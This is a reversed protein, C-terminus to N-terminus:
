AKNEFDDITMEHDFRLLLKRDEWDEEYIIEENLIYERLIHRPYNAGALYSLPYGGGFRPNIEIGYITDCTRSKFIQLTLCGRVGMIEGLKDRVFNIIYLNKDTIGKNTEGGRVAIRIRPVVCCLKSQSNYYLDITYETFDEPSLYEMWMLDGDNLLHKSIKDARDILHLDRSSSGSIPKIFVPFSPNEKDIITPVNIDLDEFFANTKRKDRCMRIVESDSVIVNIGHSKFLLRSESLLLLETDITPIVIAVDNQLCLSLLYDIYDEDGFRGVKFAKDSVRCAASLEPQLDTTFVKVSDGLLELAEKRFYSVLSM